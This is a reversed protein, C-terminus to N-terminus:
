SRSRGREYVSGLRCSRRRASRGACRTSSTDHPAHPPRWRPVPLDAASHVAPFQQQQKTILVKQRQQTQISSSSVKQQWKTTSHVRVDSYVHIRSARLQVRYLLIIKFRTSGSWRFWSQDLHRRWDNARVLGSISAACPGGHRLRLLTTTDSRRELLACQKV